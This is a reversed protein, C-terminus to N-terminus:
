ELSERTTIIKDRNEMAESGIGHVLSSYDRTVCEQIVAM